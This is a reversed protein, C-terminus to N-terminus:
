NVEVLVKVTPDAGLLGLHGRKWTVRGVCENEKLFSAAFTQCLRIEECVRRKYTEERCLFVSIRKLVNRVESSPALRRNWLTSELLDVLRAQSTEKRVSEDADAAAPKRVPRVNEQQNSIDGLPELVSSAKNSAM